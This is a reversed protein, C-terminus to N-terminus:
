PGQGPAEEGLLARLIAAAAAPEDMIRRWTFRVVRYGAV